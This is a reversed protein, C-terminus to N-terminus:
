SRKLDERRCGLSGIFKILVSIRSCNCFNAFYINTGQGHGNRKEATAKERAMMM